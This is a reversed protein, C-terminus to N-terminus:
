RARRYEILWEEHDITLATVDAWKLIAVVSPPGPTPIWATWRVDGKWRYTTRCEYRDPGAFGGRV